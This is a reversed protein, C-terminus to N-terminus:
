REPRHRKGDEPRPTATGHPRQGDPARVPNHNPSGGIRGIPAAPASSHVPPPSLVSGSGHSPQGPLHGPGAPATHPAPIGIPRQEHPPLAHPPRAPEAAHHPVGTEVRAPASPHPEDRRMGPEAARHHEPEDRRWGPEPRNHDPEVRVPHAPEGWRHRDPEARVAPAAEHARYTYHRRERDYIFSTHIGRPPYYDHRHPGQLHCWGGHNDPHADFFSIVIPASYYYVGGDVRYWAPNEPPFDHDHVGDLYCWGGGISDPIHHPGFYRYLTRSEYAVPPPPAPEEYVVPPPPAAPPPPPEPRYVVPRRDVTTVTCASLASLALLLAFPRIRM